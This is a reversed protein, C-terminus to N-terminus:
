KMAKLHKCAPKFGGRCAKKYLVKAKIRDKKVGNGREYSLGLISCGVAFDLDCAKQYAANAMPLDKALGRGNKFMGGMNYCAQAINNKCALSFLEFSKKYDQKIGTGKHYANGLNFCGKISGLDCAKQYLRTAEKDPNTVTPMDNTLTAQNFCANAYDGGCAKDYYGWAAIASKGINGLGKQSMIGLNYCSVPMGGHCGKKFLKVARPLDQYKKQTFFIAGLNHCANINKNILCESEFLTKAAGIDKKVGKGYEYIYGLVVCADSIKGDMCASGILAYAKDADAKIEEGSFYASGLTFCSQYNKNKCETSLSEITIESTSAPTSAAENKHTQLGPKADNGGSMGSHPETKKAVKSSKQAKLLMYIATATKCAKKYGAKCAKDVLKFAKASDKPISEGKLNMIGLNFCAKPISDRGYCSAQYYTVAKSANHKVGGRATDYMVALNYCAKSDDLRCSKQILKLAKKLDKKVGKGKSYLMGLNLCSSKNDKDCALTYFKIAEKYNRKTGVGFEYLAGTNTCSSVEKFRECAEHFIKFAQKENKQVHKGNLFRQGLIFCAKPNGKDCSKELKNTSLTESYLSTSISIIAIFWLLQKM